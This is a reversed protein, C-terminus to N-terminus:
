FYTLGEEKRWNYQGPGPEDSKKQKDRLDKGFTHGGNYPLEVKYMGPGPENSKQIGKSKEDHGFVVGGGKVKRPDMKSDYAGPGPAREKIPENYKGKITIGKAENTSPLTYNGPGPMTDVNNKYRIVSGFVAEPARPKTPDGDAVNYTGPAPNLLSDKNLKTGKEGAGMSYKPGSITSPLQYQGPGVDNTNQKIEHRGAIIINKGDHGITSPVAYQGPGPFDKANALNGRNGTGFTYATKPREPSSDYTGPGPMDKNTVLTDGKAGTISFSPGSKYKYDANPNYAAPGPSKEVNKEPSKTGIYVNPGGLTTKLQYQGPGPLGDDKLDSSKPKNGFSVTPPRSKVASDDPNYINPGPMAAKNRMLPDETRHGAISYSPGNRQHGQDYTGPGPIDDPARDKIKGAIFVSKGEKGITGHQDYTGPGPMHLARKSASDDRNGHGFSYEKGKHFNSGTDYMGPGPAGDGRTLSQRQGSGMVTGPTGHRILDDKPNYNGPGPKQDGHPDKYRGRIGYSPGENGVTTKLEYQGPGPMMDGGKKAKEPSGFNVGPTSYKIKDFEPNYSGPAPNLETGLKQAKGKLGMSYAPSTHMSKSQYHGPGPREDTKSTKPRGKISAAKPDRFYDDSVKYQGPGPMDKGRNIHARGGRGFGFGHTKNGFESAPEYAGPGPMQMSKNINPSSRKGGGFSAGFGQTFTSNMAYTGPGPAGEKEKVVTKVGLYGGKKNLTTEQKYAGPGPENQGNRVTQAYRSGFTYNPTQHKRYNDQYQGPGPADLTNRKQSFKGRISWKPNAKKVLNPDTVPYNGPGPKSLDGSKLDKSRHAKGISYAINSQMGSM